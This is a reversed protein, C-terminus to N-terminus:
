KIRNSRWKSNFVLRHSVAWASVRPLAAKGQRNDDSRRLTKAEIAMVEGQILQSLSHVWNLCCQQMPEPKLRALVRAFPDHSAIGM